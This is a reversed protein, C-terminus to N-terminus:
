FYRTCVYYCTVNKEKEGRFLVFSSFTCCVCVSVKSYGEQLIGLSYRRLLTFVSNQLCLVILVVSKIMAAQGVSKQGDSQRMTSLILIACKRQKHNRDNEDDDDNNDNSELSRSGQSIPHSPM